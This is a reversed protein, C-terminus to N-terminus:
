RNYNFNIRKVAEAKVENRFEAYVKETIATSTHGLLSSILSINVGQELANVAWSHRAYHFTVKKNLGAKNSINELSKNITSTISNRRTRLKEEDKLDFNDPLLGFVFVEHKGQWQRLIELAEDTLPIINRGRTKVQIKDLEKKEFDIDCWRLTIIDSIRLGCARLAMEFCTLAYIQRGNLLSRDVNFFRSMEDTTLYKIHRRANDDISKELIIDAIAQASTKSLLGDNSAQNCIKSIAEHYKVVTDTQRGGDIGWSLFDYVVDETMDGVFLEQKNRMKDENMYKKFQNIISIGNKYTSVGIKRHTYHKKLLENAYAVFTQGKDSRLLKNDGYMFGKIVDANIEGYKAVDEFINCDVKKLLKQLEQNKKMYDSGFSARLEGIGHNANQNWDKAKTM